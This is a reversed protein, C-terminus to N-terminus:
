AGTAQLPLNETEWRRLSRAAEYRVMDLLKAYRRNELLKTLDADHRMWGWHAAMVRVLVDLMKSNDHVHVRRPPEWIMRIATTFSGELPSATNTYPKAGMRFAQAVFDEFDPLMYKQAEWFMQAHFVANSSYKPQNLKLEALFDFLEFQIPRTLAEPKLYHLGPRVNKLAPQRTEEFLEHSTVITRAKLARDGHISWGDKMQPFFQLIQEDLSQIRVTCGGFQGGSQGAKLNPDHDPVIASMKTGDLPGHYKNTQLFHFLCAIHRQKEEPIVLKGRKKPKFNSANPQEISCVIAFYDSRSALAARSLQWSDPGCELIVDVPNKDLSLRRDFNMKYFSTPSTM